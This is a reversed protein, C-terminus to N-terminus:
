PQTRKGLDSVSLRITRRPLSDGQAVVDGVNAIELEVQELDQVHTDDEAVSAIAIEIDVRDSRYQGFCSAQGLARDGFGEGKGVAVWRYEVRGRVGDAHRALQHLRHVRDFLGSPPPQAQGLLDTAHRRRRGQSPRDIFHDEAGIRRRGKEVQAREHRVREVEFAVFLLPPPCRLAHLATPLGGHHEGLGIRAGIDTGAAGLCDFLGIAGPVDLADLPEDGTSVHAIGGLVDEMQHQGPGLAGTRAGFPQAQKVDGVIKEVGLCEFEAGAVPNERGPQFM